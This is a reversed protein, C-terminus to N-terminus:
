RPTLDTGTVTLKHWELVADELCGTFRARADEDLLPAVRLLTEGDPGPSASRFRVRVGSNLVCYRGVTEVVDADDTTPGNHRVAVSMTTTGEGIPSSWYHATLWLGWIVGGIVLAGAVPVAVATWVTVSRRPPAVAIGGASAAAVGHRHAAVREVASAIVSVALGTALFVPIFVSAEPGHLAVLALGPLTLGPWGNSSALWAFDPRPEPDSAASVVRVEHAADALADLRRELGRLRSLVVLTAGIVLSAVFATAAIQARVWEWELLYYVAHGGAVVVVATLALWATVAAITRTV